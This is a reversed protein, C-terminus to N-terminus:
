RLDRSKEDELRKKHDSLAQQRAMARALSLLLADSSNGCKHKKPNILLSLPSRKRM